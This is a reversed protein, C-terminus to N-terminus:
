GLAALSTGWGHLLGHAAGCECPAPYCGQDCSFCMILSLMWEHYFTWLTRLSPVAPCGVPVQRFGWPYFLGSSYHSDLGTSLGSSM